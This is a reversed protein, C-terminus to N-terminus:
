LSGGVISHAIQLLTGGRFVGLELYCSEKTVLRSASDILFQRLSSGSMSDPEDLNSALQDSDRVLQMVTKLDLPFGRKLTEAKLKDNLYGLKPALFEILAFLKDPSKVGLFDLVGCAM